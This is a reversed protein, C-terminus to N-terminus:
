VRGAGFHDPAAPAGRGTDHAHGRQGPIPVDVPFGGDGSVGTAGGGRRAAPGVQPHLRPDQPRESPAAGEGRLGAQERDPNRDQLGPQGVPPGATRRAAPLYM